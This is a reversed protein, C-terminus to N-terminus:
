VKRNAEKEDSTKRPRVARDRRDSQSCPPARPTEVYHAAQHVVQQAVPEPTALLERDTRQEGDPQGFDEPPESAEDEGDDEDDTTTNDEPLPSAWRKPLHQHHSTPESASRKKPLTVAPKTPGDVSPRMLSLQVQAAQM